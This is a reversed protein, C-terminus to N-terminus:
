PKLESALLPAFDPSEVDYYCIGKAETFYALRVRPFWHHPEIREPPPTSRIARRWPDMTFEIRGESQAMRQYLLRLEEESPPLLVSGTVVSHVHMPVGMWRFAQNVRFEVLRKNGAEIQAFLEHARKETAARVAILRELKEDRVVPTVYVPLPDEQQKWWAKLKAIYSMAQNM